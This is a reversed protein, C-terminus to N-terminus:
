RYLTFEEHLKLLEEPLEETIMQCGHTVYTFAAVVPWATLYLGLHQKASQVKVWTRTLLASLVAVLDLYVVLM